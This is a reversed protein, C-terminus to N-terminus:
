DQKEYLIKIDQKVYQEPALEYELKEGNVIIETYNSAGAVIYVESEDTLDLKESMGDKLMQSFVVRNNSDSVQVWTDGNTAKLELEFQSAQVLNYTTVNGNVGTMTLEQEVKEDDSDEADSGGAKDESKEQEDEQKEIPTVKDSEQFGVNEKGGPVDTDGNDAFHLVLYYIGVLAAVVFIGVLIKPLLELLKTAGVSVSSRKQVRSLQEPLDDEYAIPIEQKYEDFIEEPQLGVAEAYQKIFARAYFKGPMVSYNGEEIGILYKKQIRTINQLEDLTLNKEERALRLRSGLETLSFM